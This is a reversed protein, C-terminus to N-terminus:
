VQSPLTYERSRVSALFGSLHNMVLVFLEVRIKSDALVSDRNLLAKLNVRVM